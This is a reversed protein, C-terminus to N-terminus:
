ARFLIFIILISLKNSSPNRVVTHPQLSSDYVTQGITYTTGATLGTIVIQNNAPLIDKDVGTTVVHYRKVAVDDTASVNLTISTYTASAFSAEEMVPKETDEVIEMACDGVKYYIINPDSM